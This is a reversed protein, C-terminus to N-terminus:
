GADMDGEDEDEADEVEEDAVDDVAVEEEVEVLSLDLAGTTEDVVGTELGEVAEEEELEADHELEDAGFLVEDGEQGGADEDECAKDHKDVGVAEQSGLEELVLLEPHVGGEDFLPGFHVRAVHSNIGIVQGLCDIDEVVL